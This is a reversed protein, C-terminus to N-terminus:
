WILITHLSIMLTIKDLLYSCINTLVAVTTPPIGTTSLMTDSSAITALLFEVVATGSELCVHQLM